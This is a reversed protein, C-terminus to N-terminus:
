FWDDAKHRVSGMHLVDPKQIGEIGLGAPVIHKGDGVMDPIQSALPLQIMVDDFIMLLMDDIMNDNDNLSKKIDSL